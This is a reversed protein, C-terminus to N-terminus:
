EWDVEESEAAEARTSATSVNTRDPGSQDAASSKTAKGSMKIGGKDNGSSALSALPGKQMASVVLTKNGNKVVLRSNLGVSVEDTALLAMGKTIAVSGTATIKEVKGAAALVTYDTKSEAAVAFATLLAICVFTCVKKM